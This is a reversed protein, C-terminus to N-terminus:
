NEVTLVEFTTGVDMAVNRVKSVVESGIQPDESQVLQCTADIPIQQTVPIHGEPPTDRVRYIASPGAGLESNRARLKGVIFARMSFTQSNTAINELVVALRSQKKNYPVALSIRGTIKAGKPIVGLSGPLKVQSTIEGEVPAGVALKPSISKTLMVPIRVGAPLPQEAAGSPLVFLTAAITSALWPASARLTLNM